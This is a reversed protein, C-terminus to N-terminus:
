EDKLGYLLFRFDSNSAAALLLYYCSNSMHRNSYTRDQAGSSPRFSQGFCTSHKVLIFLKHFLHMKDTKSYRINFMKSVVVHSALKEVLPLRAMATGM